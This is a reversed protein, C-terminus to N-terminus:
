EEGEFPNIPSRIGKSNLTERNKNFAEKSYDQIKIIGPKADEPAIILIEDIVQRHKLSAKSVKLLFEVTDAGRERAEKEHSIAEELYKEGKTLTSFALEPKGREFLIKSMALRKDSFLLALEAEKSHNTTLVHWLKDRSAKIFWFPSDPLIRGPYPLQYDIEMKTKEALVSFPFPTAFAYRVSASKLVSVSLIAFAFVFALFGLLYRRMFPYHYHYLTVWNTDLWTKGKKTLRYFNATAVKQSNSLGYDFSYLSNNGFGANINACEM